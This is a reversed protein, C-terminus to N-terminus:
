VINVVKLDDHELTDLDMEPLEPHEEQHLDDEDPSFIALLTDENVEDGLEVFIQEVVGSIKSTITTEMKMTEIVMLGQNRQVHDGEQIQIDIIKGPLPSGLHGPNRHDTHLERDAKVEFTKDFIRIERLFGNVEFQMTRYGEADPESMELFKILTDIGPEIQITTEEGPRLGYFYVHSELKSVDSYAQFHECYDAYVRPYLAYSLVKQEMVGEEEMIDLYYNEKLHAAIAEFDADPLLSGPRVTIPELDKIVIKQM